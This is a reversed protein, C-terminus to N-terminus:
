SPSSYLVGPEQNLASRSCLIFPYPLHACTSPTSSLHSGILSTGLPSKHLATRSVGCLSPMHTDILRVSVSLPPFSLFILRRGKPFTGGLRHPLANTKQGIYPLHANNTFVLNHWTSLFQCTKPEVKRGRPFEQRAPSSRKASPSPCWAQLELISGSPPSLSCSWHNLM